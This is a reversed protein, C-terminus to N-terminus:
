LLKTVQLALLCFSQNCSFPKKQLRHQTKHQFPTLNINTYYIFWYTIIKVRGSMVFFCHTTIFKNQLVSCFSFSGNSNWGHSRLYSVWVKKKKCPRGCCATTLRNSYLSIVIMSTAVNGEPPLSFLLGAARCQGSLSPKQSHLASPISVILRQDEVPAESSSFSTFCPQSYVHSSHIGKSCYLLFIDSVNVCPWDTRWRINEASSRYRGLVLVEYPKKHPSDLPFVFQGSTTVQPSVALPSFM